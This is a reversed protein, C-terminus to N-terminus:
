EGLTERLLTTNVSLPEVDSPTRVPPRFDKILGPQNVGTARQDIANLSAKARLNGTSTMPTVGWKGWVWGGVRKGLTPKDASVGQMTSDNTSTEGSLLSRNYSSSNRERRRYTPRGTATAASVVPKSSGSEVFSTIGLPTRPTFGQGSFIRAPRERLTHIDMGSISLLSDHSAARRLNSRVQDTKSCAQDVDGLPVSDSVVSYQISEVEPEEVITSPSFGISETRESNNVLHNTDEAAQLIGSISQPPVFRVRLAAPASHKRLTKSSSIRRRPSLTPSASGTSEPSTPRSSELNDTRDFLSPSKYMSQPSNPMSSSVLTSQTQSSQMSWRNSSPIQSQPPVTVSTQSLITAASSSSTSRLRGQTSSPTRVGSPTFAGNMITGRNKKPRRYASVRERAITGARSSGHYHHHVHLEPVSCIPPKAEQDNVLSTTQLGSNVDSVAPQYFVMQERLNEVEDNSNMLMGRLETIGLQLNANDQLIDKVFHSVVTNGSKDVGSGKDSVADRRGEGVGGLEKKVAKQRELRGIVEVHREREDGTEKEMRQAQEQLYEITREAEKWRQVASRQGDESADLKAHLGAQEIEMASIQAELDSTRAALINLRQNENRSSELTAALSKIHIDSEFVTNNLGELQDLLRRNEEIMSGNVLELSKKDKELNDITTAVMGLKGEAEAMYEEHRALLAQLAFTLSM